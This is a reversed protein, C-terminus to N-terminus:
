FRDTLHSESDLYMEAQHAEGSQDQAPQGWRRFSRFYLVVAVILVTAALVGIAVLIWGTM